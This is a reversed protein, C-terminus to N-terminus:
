TSHGSSGDFGWKYKIEIQTEDTAVCTLVENQVTALRKTAHDLLSQLPVEASTESIKINEPYCEKKAQLLKDYAPYIDCNRLKAGKKIEKYQAVTLKANIFLALAEPPTYPRMEPIKTKMKKITRISRPSSSVVKKLVAAVNRKGKKVFSTQAAHVLEEPSHTTLLLKTRRKKTSSSTASFEKKQRTSSMPYMIPIDKSLWEAYKSLFYDKKRSAKKYRILFNNSFLSVKIMVDEKSSGPIASCILEVM